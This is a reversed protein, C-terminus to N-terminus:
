GAKRKDVMAYALSNCAETPHLTFWKPMDPIRNTITVFDGSRRSWRVTTDQEFMKTSLTDM